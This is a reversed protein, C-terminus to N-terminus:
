DKTRFSEVHWPAVLGMYRLWQAWARSGTLRLYQAWTEYGIFGACELAWMGCSSLGHAVSTWIM